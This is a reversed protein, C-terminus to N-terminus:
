VRNTPTVSPFSLMQVLTSARVRLEILDGAQRQEEEWDIHMSRVM